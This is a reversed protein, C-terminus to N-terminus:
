FLFYKCIVRPNSKSFCSNVPSSVFSGYVFSVLRTKPFNRFAELVDVAGDCDTTDSVLVMTKVLERLSASKSVLIVLEFLEDTIVSAGMLRVVM